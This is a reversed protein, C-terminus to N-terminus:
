SYQSDVLKSNLRLCDTLAAAINEKDATPRETVNAVKCYSNIFVTSMKCMKNKKIRTLPICM